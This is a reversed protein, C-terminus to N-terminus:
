PSASSGDPDPPGSRDLASYRTMNEPRGFLWAMDGDSSIKEQIQRQKFKEVDVHLMSIVAGSGLRHMEAPARGKGFEFIRCEPADGDVVQANALAVTGPLAQSAARAVAAMKEFKKTYCPALIMDIRDSVRVVSAVSPYDAIDLCILAAIRLGFIEVALVERWSPVSVKEKAARASLAKHFTLVKKRCGPYFLFGTNYLMRSDHASGAIVLARHRESMDHAFDIAADSPRRSPSTPFGLESVCVVNADMATLAATVAERFADLRAAAVDDNFGVLSRTWAEPELDPQKKKVRLVSFPPDTTYLSPPMSVLAVKVTSRQRLLEPPRPHHLHVTCLRDVFRSFPNEPLPRRQPELITKTIKVATDRTTNRSQKV